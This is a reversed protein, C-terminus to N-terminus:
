KIKEAREKRARADKRHEACAWLYGRKGKTLESYPGRLRFGYPGYNDCKFCKM